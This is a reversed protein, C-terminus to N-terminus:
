RGIGGILGAVFKFVWVILIVFLAFVLVMSVITCTHALWEDMTLTAGGIEYTSALGGNFLNDLLFQYILQYM